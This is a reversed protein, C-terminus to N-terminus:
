VRELKYVSIQTGNATPILYLMGSSTSINMTSVTSLLAAGSISYSGHATLTLDGTTM